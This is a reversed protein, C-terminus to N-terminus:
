YLASDGCKESKAGQICQFPPSNDEAESSLIFAEPPHQAPPTEHPLGPEQGVAKCM